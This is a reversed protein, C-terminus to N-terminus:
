LYPLYIHQMTLNPWFDVTALALLLEGETRAVMGSSIAFPICSEM